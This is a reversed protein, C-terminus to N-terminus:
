FQNDQLAALFYCIYSNLLINNFVLSSKKERCRKPPYRGVNKANQHQLHITLHKLNQQLLGM